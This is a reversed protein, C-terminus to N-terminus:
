QDNAVGILDKERIRVFKFSPFLNEIEKQRKIDKEKLQNNRYHREEDWEMILKLDPNFYDPFYGLEEVHYEGGNTAYMGDTNNEQDFKAFFKCANSNYMPSVQGGEFKNEKLIRLRALRMKKLAEQTPHKGYNHNKEGLQALRMKEKAEESRHRGFMPNNKGSKSLRMKKKIEETRRRGLNALGIKRKTGETHHKDKNWSPKDKLSLSIKKRTEELVPHGKLSNSQKRLSKNTEKTLGKNWAIQGKLAESLHKRHIESCPPKKKGKMAKSLKRKHGETRVYIGSPM